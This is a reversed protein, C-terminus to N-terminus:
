HRCPRFSGLTLKIHVGAVLIDVTKSQKSCGSGVIEVHSQVHHQQPLGRRLSLESRANAGGSPTQQIVLESAADVCDALPVRWAMSFRVAEAASASPRVEAAARQPGAGAAIGAARCHGGMSLLVAPQDPDPMRGATPAASTPCAGTEATTDPGPPLVQLLPVQMGTTLVVSGTASASRQLKSDAQGLSENPPAGLWAELPMRQASTGGAASALHAALGRATPFGALLQPPVDLEAAAAVAALSDGGAAFFDSTPELRSDQLATVFARM